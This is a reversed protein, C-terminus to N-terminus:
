QLDKPHNKRESGQLYVMATSMINNVMNEAGVGDGGKDMFKTVALSGHYINILFILKSEAGVLKWIIEAVGARAICADSFSFFCQGVAKNYRFISFNYINATSINTDNKNTGVEQATNHLRFNFYILYGFRSYILSLVRFHRHGLCKKEKTNFITQKKSKTMYNYIKPTSIWM